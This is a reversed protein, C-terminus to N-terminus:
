NNINSNSNGSTVIIKIEKKDQLQSGQRCNFGKYISVLCLRGYGPPWQNIEFTRLTGNAYPANSCGKEERLGAEERSTNVGNWKCWDSKVGGNTVSADPEILLPIYLPKSPFFLM